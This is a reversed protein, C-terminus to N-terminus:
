KYPNVELANLNIALGKEILNDVDFHWELLLDFLDRVNSIQYDTWKYFLTMGHSQVCFELEEGEDTMISYIHNWEDDIQLNMTNFNLGHVDVYDSDDIHNFLSVIPVFKEGGHEIEKTLDSLPRLIPLIGTHFNVYTNGRSWLFGQLYGEGIPINLKNPKVIGILNWIKGSKCDDENYWDNDMYSESKDQIIIGKLGYPLRKAIHKLELKKM